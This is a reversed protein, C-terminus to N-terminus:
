VKPRYYQNVMFSSYKYVYMYMYNATSKISNSVWNSCVNNCNLPYMCTSYVHIYNRVEPIDRFNGWGMAHGMICVTCTLHTLSRDITLLLQTERRIRNLNFFVRNYLLRCSCVRNQCVSSVIGYFGEVTGFKTLEGATYSLILFCLIVYSFIPSFIICPYFM